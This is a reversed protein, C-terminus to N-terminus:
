GLLRRSFCMGGYGAALVQSGAKPYPSSSVIKAPKVSVKKSLFVLGIDNDTGNYKPHMVYEAIDTSKGKAVEVSGYIIGTHVM